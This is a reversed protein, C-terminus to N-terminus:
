GYKLSFLRKSQNLLKVKKYCTEGYGLERSEPTKLVRGCRLCRHYDHNITVQIDEIINTRKKKKKKVSKM